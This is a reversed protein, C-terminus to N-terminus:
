DETVCSGLIKCLKWQQFAQIKDRVTQMATQQAETLVYPPRFEPDDEEARFVFLLLQRWEEAYREVTIIDIWNDFLM